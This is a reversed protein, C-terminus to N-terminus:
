WGFRIGAMAASAYAPGGYEGTYSLYVDVRPSINWDVGADVRARDTAAAAGQILFPSGPFDVFAPAVGRTPDFEHLWDVRLFPTVHAAQAAAWVGDIQLGLDSQLSTTSHAGYSLAFDGPGSTTTETYAGVELVSAQVAAFPVIRAAGADFRYGTEVRVTLGDSEFRSSVIETEGVAQVTRNVTNEYFDGGVFGQGYFGGSRVEGYGGVHFGDIDGSTGRDAVSFGSTDGGIALGVLAAPGLDRQLGAAVGANNYTMGASAAATSGALGGGAGYASGWATTEGFVSRQAANLGRWSDTQRGVATVFLDSASFSTQEIDAGGEGSLSDFAARDQAPTGYSLDNIAGILGGSTLMGAARDLVAGVATENAGRGIAAFSGPAHMVTVELMGHELSADATLFQNGLEFSTFAGSIGGSATILQFQEGLTLRAGDVPLLQLTGGDIAVPGTVVLTSYSTPAVEFALTATPGQTYGGIIRMVGPDDGAQLKGMSYVKGNITGTGVLSGPGAIYVNYGLLQGGGGITLGGQAGTKIVGNVMLVTDGVFLAGGATLDLTSQSSLSLTNLDVVNSSADLSFVAGRSASITPVDVIGGGQVALTGGALTISTASLKGGGDAMFVSGANVTLDSTTWSSNDGTVEAKM